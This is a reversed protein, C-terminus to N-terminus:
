RGLRARREFEAQTMRFETKPRTAPTIVLARAATRTLPQQEYTVFDTAATSWGDKTPTVDPNLRTFDSIFRTTFRVPEFSRADVALDFQNVNRGREDNTTGVLHVVERGRIRSRRGERLTGEDLLARLRDIPDGSGAASGRPQPGGFLLSPFDGRAPYNTKTIVELRRIQPYWTTQTDGDRAMEIPGPTLTGDWTGMTGCRKPMGPRLVRWRPRGSTAQWVETPRRQACPGSSPRGPGDGNLIVYHVLDGSDGLAARAETVPDVPTVAPVVVVAALAGAVALGATVLLLRRRRDPRRRRTAAEAGVQAEADALRQGFDGLYAELEPRENKRSRRDTM